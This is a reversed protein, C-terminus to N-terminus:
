TRRWEGGADNRWTSIELQALSHRDIPFPIMKTYSRPSHPVLQLLDIDSDPRADGRAHSGYLMVGLSECEIAQLIRDVDVSPISMPTVTMRGLKTITAQPSPITALASTSATINAVM